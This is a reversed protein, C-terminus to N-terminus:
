RETWGKGALVKARFREIRAKRTAPNATSGLHIVYSRQRGPTLAAFAQSFEPDQDLADVLEDQLDVNSAVKAPRLGAQAYGIAEQLYAAITEEIALVHSADTFCILDPQSTNPGRKVLVAEPDKLLAANMFNLRFDDRFAGILAINRDGSMYCPHGWKVTEVLGAALCIRRLEALGAAWQRTSCDPTDFRPCRGCGKIFYDEIDTIM